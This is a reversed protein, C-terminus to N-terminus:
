AFLENDSVGYSKMIKYAEYIESQLSEVSLRRARLDSVQTCLRKALDPHEQSFRQYYPRNRYIAGASINSDVGYNCFHLHFNNYRPVVEGSKFEEFSLIQHEQEPGPPQESM